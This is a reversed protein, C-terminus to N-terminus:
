RREEKDPESLRDRSEAGAGYFSWGYIFGHDQPDVAHAGGAAAVATKVVKQLTKTWLRDSGDSNM